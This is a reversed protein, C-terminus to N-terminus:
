PEQVLQKTMEWIGNTTRCKVVDQNERTKYSTNLLCMLRLSDLPDFRDGM